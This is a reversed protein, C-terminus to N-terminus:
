SDGSRDVVNHDACCQHRAPLKLRECINLIYKEKCSNSLVANLALEWSDGLREGLRSKEDGV